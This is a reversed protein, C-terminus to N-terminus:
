GAADHDYDAFHMAQVVPRKGVRVSCDDRSSAEFDKDNDPQWRQIIAL